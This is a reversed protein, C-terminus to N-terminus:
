FYVWEWKYSMATRRYMFACYKRNRHTFTGQFNKDM